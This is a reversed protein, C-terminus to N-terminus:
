IRWPSPILGMAAGSQHLFIIPTVSAVTATGFYVYLGTITKGGSVGSLMQVIDPIGDGNVDAIAVSAQDITTDSYSFGAPILAVTKQFSGDANGTAVLVEYPTMAPVMALDAIGDGNFDATVPLSVQALAYNNSGDYPRDDALHFTGDGQGKLMFLGTAGSTILDLTGDHTFDGVALGTVVEGSLYTQPASFTGDGNGLLVFVCPSAYISPTIASYVALDAIGDGNFDGQVIGLPPNTVPFSQGARFTGDGNGWLVNVAGAMTALAIDPIGDQNVDLIIIQTPASDLPFQRAPAFTGDGNGLLVSISNDASNATVADLIGDGNLDPSAVAVGDSFPQSDIAVSQTSMLALPVALAKLAAQGVITNATNNHFTVLGAPPATSSGLVSVSLDYSSLATQNETASLQSTTAVSGNITVVVTSSVAAQYTRGQGNYRATVSNAGAPLRTKLTATGSTFGAAPHAGVVQVTGLARVGSYFTVTGANIAQSNHTATAKLMVVDGVMASNGGGPTTVSFAVNVTAGPLTGAPAINVIVPSSLSASAYYDDGNYIVTLANAGANINSTPVNLEATACAFGAADTCGSVRAAQLQTNGLMLRVTGSPAVWSLSTTSMAVHIELEASAGVSTANTTASVTPTAKVVTLGVQKSASAQLSADGSYTTSFGYEGLSLLVTSLEIEGADNLPMTQTIPAGPTPVAGSFTLTGTAVGIGSASSARANIVIRSGYPVTAQIPFLTSGSVASMSLSTMSSEPAVTVTVGPSVSTAFHADGGYRASVEYTGGPLAGMPGNFVGNTLTEQAVSANNPTKANTLIVVDGGPTGQGSQPTVSVAINVQEGHKFALSNINLRTLSPARTDTTWNNVLNAVNVSGLGTVMDYGPAANYGPLTGYVGPTSESCGPSGGACPVNSNGRTVDRIACSAFDHGPASGDCQSESANQSEAVGYLVAAPQGQLSATKQNVLAMVGGFTPASLSTGAAVYFDFSGDTADVSCSGGYCLVYGDHAAAALSIDPLDRAGDSPVGAGAQWEPKRYHGSCTFKGNNGASSTTCSSPGGGGAAFNSKSAGCTYPSCSENWAAEPVYSLASGYAASLQAAWYAESANEDFETGGVAVNYPTSALGNVVAGRAAVVPTGPDGSAFPLECGAPGADGSSVVVTIGQAAAQEWLASYFQNGATGLASECAGYSVTLVPAVNNDVAYLASLAIGDSDNTSASVILVIRADPAMAGAYEADATAEVMDEDYTMGPDPGNVVIEFADQRAFPQFLARFESLDYASINSRAAVAIKQGSGSIKNAGSLLPAANYITQLDAPVLAHGINGLQDFFTFAPKTTSGAAKVGSGGAVIHASGRSVFNHLAAVGAVVPILAAPIQPDVANAYHRAGGVTYARIETHFANEVQAATGSFEIVGRGNNVREPTLGHSNLWATVTDIDKTAVGFQAGFEEPTLWRHYNASHKDQLSAIYEDLRQQQEPSRKLVLMMRQMPLEASVAGRDFEPRALPHTNGPLKLRVNEDVRAVIRAQPESLNRALPTGQAMM